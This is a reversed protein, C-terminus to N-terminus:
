FGNSELFDRLKKLCRARTPGISGEPLNLTKAVQNYPIPDASYYLMQLLNRCREDLRTLGERILQQEELLIVDDQLMRNQDAINAMGDAAQEDGGAAPKAFDSAAIARSSKRSVRWCERKTTTVLWGMIRDQQRLTPLKDLLILCVAGFIDDADAKSMGYRLPVSYILSQYREILVDWAKENGKLCAEIITADNETTGTV